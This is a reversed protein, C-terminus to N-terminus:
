RATFEASAAVPDSRSSRARRASGAPGAHRSRIRDSGAQAPASPHDTPAGQSCLYFEAADARGVRAGGAGIADSVLHRRAGGRSIADCLVCPLREAEADRSLVSGRGALAQLFLWVVRRLPTGH